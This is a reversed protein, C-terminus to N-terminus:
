SRSHLLDDDRCDATQSVARKRSAGRLYRNQGDASKGGEVLQVDCRCGDVAEEVGVKGYEDSRRDEGSTAAPNLGHGILPNAKEVAELVLGRGDFYFGYTAGFCLGFGPVLLWLVGM